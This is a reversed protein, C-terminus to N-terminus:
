KLNIIQKQIFDIELILQNIFEIDKSPYAKVLKLQTQNLIKTWADYPKLGNNVMGIHKNILTEM